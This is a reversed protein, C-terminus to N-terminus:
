QLGRALSGFFVARGRRLRRSADRMAAFEGPLASITPTIPRHNPQCIGTQRLSWV